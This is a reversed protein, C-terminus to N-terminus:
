SWTDSGGGKLWIGAWSKVAAEKLSFRFCFSHYVILIGDLMVAIISTGESLETKIMGSM